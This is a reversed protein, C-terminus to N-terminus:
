QRGFLFVTLAYFVFSAFLEHRPGSREAGPDVGGCPRHRSGTIGPGPPFPTFLILIKLNRRGKALNDYLMEMAQRHKYVVRAKILTIARYKKKFGYGQVSSIVV